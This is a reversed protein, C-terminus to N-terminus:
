LHQQNKERTSDAISELFEDLTPKKRVITATHTTAPQTSSSSSSTTYFTDTQQVNNNHIIRKIELEIWTIKSTKLM